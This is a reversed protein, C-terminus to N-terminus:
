QAPEEPQVEPASVESPAEVPTTVEPTAEVETATTELEQEDM